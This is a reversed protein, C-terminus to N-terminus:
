HVADDNGYDGFMDKKGNGIRIKTLKHKNIM